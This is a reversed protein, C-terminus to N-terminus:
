VIARQFARLPITEEKNDREFVFTQNLINYQVDIEQPKNQTRQHQLGGARRRASQAIAFIDQKWMTATRNSFPDIFVKQMADNLKGDSPLRDLLNNQVRVIDSRLLLENLEDKHTEIFQMGLLPSGHNESQLRALLHDTDYKFAARMAEWGQTAINPNEPDLWKEFAEAIAADTQEATNPVTRPMTLSMYTRGNDQVIHATLTFGRYESNYGYEFSIRCKSAISPDIVRRVAIELDGVRERLGSQVDTYQRAASSLGMDLETTEMHRAFEMTEEETILISTDRPVPLIATDGALRQLIAEHTQIRLDLESLESLYALDAAVIEGGENQGLITTYPARARTIMDRQAYLSQIQSVHFDMEKRTTADEIRRYWRTVMDAAYSKDGNHQSMVKLTAELGLLSRGRDDGINQLLTLALADRNDRYKDIWTRLVDVYKKRLEKSGIHHKREIFLKGANTEHMPPNMQSLILTRLGSRLIAERDIDDVEGLPAHIGSLGAIRVLLSAERAKALGVIDKAIVGEMENLYEEDKSLPGEKFWAKEVKKSGVTLGAPGILLLTLVAILFGLATDRGTETTVDVPIGSKEFTRQIYAWEPSNASPINIHQWISRGVVGQYRSRDIKMGAVSDRTLGFAVPPVTIRVDVGSVKSMEELYHTMETSIAIKNLQDALSAFSELFADEDRWIKEINASGRFVDSLRSPDGQLLGLYLDKEFLHRLGGFAFSFLGKQGLEESSKSLETLLAFVAKPDTKKVEGNIKAILDELGADPKLGFRANVGAILAEKRQEEEGQIPPRGSTKADSGRKGSLFAAYRDDNDKNGKGKIIRIGTHTIPGYGTGKTNILRETLEHVVPVFEHPLNDIKTMTNEIQLRADRYKQMERSVEEAVGADVASKKVNGFQALALIAVISAASAGAIRSATANGWFMKKPAGTFNSGVSVKKKFLFGNAAISFIWGVLDKTAQTADVNALSGVVAEKAVFGEVLAMLFNLAYASRVANAGIAMKVRGITGVQLMRSPTADKKLRREAETETAIREAAGQLVLYETFINNPPLEDGEAANAMVEMDTVFREIIETPSASSLGERDLVQRLAENAQRIGDSRGGTDLSIDKPSVGADALLKPLQEHLSEIVAAHIKARIGDYERGMDRMAQPEIPSDVRREPGHHIAGGLLWGLADERTVEQM